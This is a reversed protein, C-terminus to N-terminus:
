ECWQIFNHWEASTVHGMYSMEMFPFIIAKQIGLITNLSKRKFLLFYYSKLQYVWIAPALVNPKWVNETTSHSFCWKLLHILFTNYIRICLMYLHKRKFLWCCDSKLLYIWPANCLNPHFVTYLNNSKSLYIWFINQCIICVIWINETACYFIIM